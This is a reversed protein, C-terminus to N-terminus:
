KIEHNPKIKFYNGSKYNGDIGEIKWKFYLDEFKISIPEFGEDLMENMNYCYYNVGDVKCVISYKSNEKDLMEFQKTDLKFNYDSIYIKEECSCYRKKKDYHDYNCRYHHERVKSLPKLHKVKITEVEM